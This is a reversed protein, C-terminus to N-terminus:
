PCGWFIVLYVVGFFLWPVVTFFFMKRWGGFIVSAVGFFLRCTVDCGWFIIFVRLFLILLWFFLEQLFLSDSAAECGSFIVSHPNNRIKFANLLLQFGSLVGQFQIELKM